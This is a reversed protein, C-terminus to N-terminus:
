GPQTARACCALARRLTTDVGRLSLGYRAAVEQRPIEDVRLAILIAGHLRPLRQMARSMAALELRAEAIADPGPAHDALQELEADADGIYHEAHDGRLRDIAVNCAVRYVYAEPNHVTASVSTEGLRLWADHLCDSAQDPCGLHRLLRRHLGAYNAALWDRLPLAAPSDAGAATNDVGDMDAMNLVGAPPELYCAIHMDM